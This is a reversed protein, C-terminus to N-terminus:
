ANFSFDFSMTELRKQTSEVSAKTLGLEEERSGGDGGQSTQLPKQPRKAAPSAGGAQPQALDEKEKRPPSAVPKKKKRRPKVAPSQPPESPQQTVRKLGSPHRSGTPAAATAVDPHPPPVARRPALKAEGSAVSPPATKKEPLASPTPKNFYDQESSIDGSSLVAEIRAAEKRMVACAAKPTQHTTCIM